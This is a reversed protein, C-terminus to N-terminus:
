IKAGIVAGVATEGHAVADLSFREILSLNGVLTRGYALHAKLMKQQNRAFMLSLHSHVIETLM